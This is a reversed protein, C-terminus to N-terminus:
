PRTTPRGGIRITIKEGGMVNTLQLESLKQVTQKKIELQNKKEEM